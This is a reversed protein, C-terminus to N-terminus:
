STKESKKLKSKFVDGKHKKCRAYTYSYGSEDEKYCSVLEGLLNHVYHTVHRSVCGCTKVKFTAVCKSHGKGCCTGLTYDAIVTGDKLEVECEANRLVLEGSIVNSPSCLACAKKRDVKSRKVKKETKM